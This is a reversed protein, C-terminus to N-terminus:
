VSEPPFKNDSTKPLDDKSFLDAIECKFLDKMILLMKQTPSQEGAEYRQVTRPECGLARAADEQSVGAKVRERQIPSEPHTGGVSAESKKKKEHNTGGTFM